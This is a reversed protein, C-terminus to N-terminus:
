GGINKKHFSLLPLKGKSKMRKVLDRHTLSNILSHGERELMAIMDPEVEYIYNQLAEFTDTGYRTEFLIKEYTVKHRVINKFWEMQDKQATTAKPAIHVLYIKAKFPKALQVLKQLTFIDAGEFDSAYVIKEMATFPTNPPIALVPCDAKEMLTTTTSGLLVKRVLNEGQTGVVILDANGTKAENHIGNWVSSKETVKIAINLKEPPYGLHKSCFAVLKEQEKVSAKVEKRAYTLSTTSGLTLPVDYVHLVLLKATLQLRIANAYHLADVSNESYDTAYLITKM